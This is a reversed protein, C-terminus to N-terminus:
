EVLQIPDGIVTVGWTTTENANATTDEYEVKWWCDVPEGAPEACAYSPDLPIEILVTRDQFSIGSDQKLCPDGSCDQTIPSSSSGIDGRGCMYGYDVCDITYWSFDVYDGHPDIIRVADIGDAPDFLEVLMTKGAHTAEIEALYLEARGIAGSPFMQAHTYATLYDKASINPCGSAGTAGIRSCSYSGSFGTPVVRLSYLSRINSNREPNKAKLVYRGAANIDGIEVWPAPDFAPSWGSGNTPCIATSPRPVNTDSIPPLLVNDNDDLPTADSPYLTFQMSANAQSGDFEACTTRAQLKYADDLPVDIIFTHGDDRHNPNTNPCGGGAGIFDGTSRSECDSMARLWFNSVLGGAAAETALGLTSTPNGLPVPLVYEAVARRHIRVRDSTIIEGLLMDADTVVDVRIQRSGVQTVIVQPLDTTVCNTLTDCGPRDIFGNRAAIDVAAATAQDLDHMLPVAGLAAADAAIQAEDAAVYWWGVDVALAGFTLLPVMLILSMPLVYGGEDRQEARKRTVLM